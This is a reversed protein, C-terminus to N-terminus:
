MPRSTGISGSGASPWVLCRGCRRIRVTVCRRQCARGGNSVALADLSGISEDGFYSTAKGLYQDLRHKSSPVGQYQELFVDVLERLTVEPRYVAGLRAKRLEDDLVAKAEAKTRFGGRQRRVGRGDRYRIAWGGDVRKIEGTRAQGHRPSM